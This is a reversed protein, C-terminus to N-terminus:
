GRISEQTNYLFHPNIQNQLALYQAQRKNLDMYQPSRVIRDIMQMQQQISPTLNLLDMDDSESFLYGELFRNLMRECRIYPRFIWFWPVAQFSIAFKTILIACWVPTKGWYALILQIVSFSGLVVATVIGAAGTRNSIYKMKERYKM